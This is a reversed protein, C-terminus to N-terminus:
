FTDPYLRRQFLHLAPTVLYGIRGGAAWAWRENEDGVTGVGSPAFDGHIHMFDFDGLAGVELGAGLINLQYDCGGGAVGFWGRGGSTNNTTLAIFPAPFTESYDQNWMGYGIGGAAYCGTWNVGPPPPAPIPRVPLAMDAAFAAPTGLVLAAVLGFFPARMVGGM